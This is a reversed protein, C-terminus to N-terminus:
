RIFVDLMNNKEEEEWLDIVHTNTDNATIHFNIFHISEANFDIDQKKKQRDNFIVYEEPHYPFKLVIRLFFVM